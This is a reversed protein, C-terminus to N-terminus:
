GRGGLMGPRNTDLAVAITVPAEEPDPRTRSVTGEGDPHGALRRAPVRAVTPAPSPM